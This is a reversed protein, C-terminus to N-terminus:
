AEPWCFTFPQDPERSIFAIDLGSMFVCRPFAKESPDAIALIESYRAPLAHWSEPKQEKTPSIPYGHM